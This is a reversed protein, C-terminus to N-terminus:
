YRITDYSSEWMVTTSKSDKGGNNWHLHTKTDQKTENTGNKTKDKAETGFSRINNITKNSRKIDLIGYRIEIVM